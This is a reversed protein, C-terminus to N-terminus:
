IGIDDGCMIFGIWMDVVCQLGDVGGVCFGIQCQVGVGGGFDGGFQDVVYVQDVYYCYVGVEVFLFEDVVLDVFYMGQVGYDVVVGYM